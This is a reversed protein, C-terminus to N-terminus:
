YRVQELNWLRKILVLYKSFEFPTRSLHTSAMHSFPFYQTSLYEDRNQFLFFFPLTNEFFISISRRNLNLQSVDKHYLCIELSFLFYSVARPIQFLNYKDNIFRGSTYLALITGAPVLTTHIHNYNRLELISRLIGFHKEDETLVLSKELLDGYKSNWNIPETRLRLNIKDIDYPKTYMYNVPLGIWGSYNSNMSGLIGVM